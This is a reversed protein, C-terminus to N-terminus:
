TEGELHTADLYQSNGVISPMMTSMLNRMSGDDLCNADKFRGFVRNGAGRLM